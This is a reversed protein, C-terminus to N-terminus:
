NTNISIRSVLQTDLQKKNDVARTAYLALHGLPSTQIVNFAAPEEESREGGDYM